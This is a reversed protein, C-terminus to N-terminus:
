TVTKAVALTIEYSIDEIFLAADCHPCNFEFDQQLSQGYDWLDRIKAGCNPCNILTADGYTREEM